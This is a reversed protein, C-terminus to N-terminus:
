RSPLLHASRVMGVQERRTSAKRVEATRLIGVGRFWMFAPKQHNGRKGSWHRLHPPQRVAGSGQPRGCPRASGRVVHRGSRCSCCPAWRRPPAWVNRIASDSSSAANGTLWSTNIEPVAFGCARTQCRPGHRCRIGESTLPM